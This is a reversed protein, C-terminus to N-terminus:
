RPCNQPSSKAPGRLGWVNKGRTQLIIDFDKGKAHYSCTQTGSAQGPGSRTQAIALCASKRSDTLWTGCCVGPGLLWSSALGGGLPWRGYSCGLVATEVGWGAASAWPRPVM